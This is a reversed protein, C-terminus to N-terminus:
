DYADMWRDTWGDMLGDMCAHMWADDNVAATRVEGFLAGESLHVTKVVMDNVAMTLTVAGHRLLWLSDSHDGQGYLKYGAPLHRPELTRAVARVRVRSWTSFEPVHDALFKHAAATAVERWALIHEWVDVFTIRMLVAGGDAQAYLQPAASTSSATFVLCDDVDLRLCCCCSSLPM